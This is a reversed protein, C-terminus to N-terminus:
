GSAGVSAPRREAQRDEGTIPEIEVERGEGGVKALPEGGVTSPPFYASPLYRRPEDVALDLFAVSPPPQYPDRM